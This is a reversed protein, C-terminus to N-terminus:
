LFIKKEFTTYITTEYIEFFLEEPINNRIDKAFANIKERSYNEMVDKINPDMKHLFINIDLKIENKQLNECILKLYELAMDYRKTDQIDIVYILKDAGEFYNLFDKIYDKRFQAQGGLDFIHFESDDIVYNVIDAGITPSLDFFNMLNVKGILSLVISTKGSNNLGALMIKKSEKKSKPM